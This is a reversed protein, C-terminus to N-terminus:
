GGQRERQLARAISGVRATATEPEPPEVAALDLRLGLHILDVGAVSILVDGVVSVGRDLVRNVLDTLVLQEGLDSERETM